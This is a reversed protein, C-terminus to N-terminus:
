CAPKALAAKAASKRRTVAAILILLSRSRMPSRETLMACLAMASIFSGTIRGSISIGCIAPRACLMTRLASSANTFRSGIQRAANEGRVIRHVVHAGGTIVLEDAEHLGIRLLDALRQIQKGHDPIQLANGVVGRVNGFVHEERTFPM